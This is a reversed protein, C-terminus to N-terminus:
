HNLYESVKRNILEEDGMSSQSNKQKCSIIAELLNIVSKRHNTIETKEISCVTNQGEVKLGIYQDYNNWVDVKYDTENYNNTFDESTECSLEIGLRGLVKFNYEERLLDQRERQLKYQPKRGTMFSTIDPTAEIDVLLARLLKNPVLDDCLQIEAYSSSCLLMLSLTVLLKKM